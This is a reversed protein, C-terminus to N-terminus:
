EEEDKGNGNEKLLNSYVQDQMLASDTVFQGTALSQSLLVRVNKVDTRHKPVFLRALGLEYEAETQNITMITDATHEQERGESARGTKILSGQRAENVQTFGVVAINRAGAIGRLDVAIKGLENRLHKADYAMLKPYDVLLLSPAFNRVAELQDMYAKLQRITLSGSPFEKIYLRPKRALPKLKKMLIGRIKDDKLTPRNIEQHVFEAVRGLNDKRFRTTAVKAERKSIAGFAQVYRQSVEDESMELTIHLVQYRHLLATKGLHIACWSKGTGTEAGVLMYKKRAPGIGYKDLEPIGTPLIEGVDENMFRLAQAPDNFLIGPDSLDLGIKTAQAFLADIEDACGDAGSKLLSLTKEIVAKARQLRAFTKAQGLVYDKNINDKLQFLDQLYSLYQTKKDPSRDALGEILDLLHEGPPKDYKDIYECIEKAIEKQYPDWSQLPVMARVAKGTPGDFALIALLSEQVSGSLKAFGKSMFVRVQSFQIAIICVFGGPPM